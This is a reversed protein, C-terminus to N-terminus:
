SAQAPAASYAIAHEAAEALIFGIPQRREEQLHAILSAVRALLPVGKLATAPYGADLLVAPIAGSVNLPLPKSYHEPVAAAVAELAAVHDGAIGLERAIALLRHARPDGLKHTPHGFGPLPKRAQRVARVVSNASEALTGHERGAIVEALLQGASESAGLIVSGCGLVGAAVAGQLADPAAALTMRAAQVSPVLGHEAIAVLCADTIAVLKADPERGTLLFLFYATFGTKGILAESLDKGHVSVGHIDVQAISTQGAARPHKTEAM